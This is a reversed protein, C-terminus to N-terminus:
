ITSINITFTRSVQESSLSPDAVLVIGPRDAVDLGAWGVRAVRVADADSMRPNFRGRIVPLCIIERSISTSWYRLLGSEPVLM